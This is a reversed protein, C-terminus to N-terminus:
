SGLLILSPAQYYYAGDAPNPAGGPRLREIVV